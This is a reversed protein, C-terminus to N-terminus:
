DVSTASAASPITPRDARLRLLMTGVGLLVGIGMVIAGFRANTAIKVMFFIVLGINMLWMSAPEGWAVVHKTNATRLSYVGLLLNTTMGVFISHSFVVFYWPPGLTFDPAFYLLAYIMLIVTVMVWLTGFWTWARVGGSLPNYAMSMGATRVLFLVLGVALFLGFLPVLEDVRQVLYGFPVVLAAATLSLAQLLGDWTWRRAPGRAIMGEIMGAAVLIVYTDMMAAHIGVRDDNISLPLFRGIAYELGLLLGMTAGVAAVLLGCAVLIHMTTTVPQRRLQTLAYIAAAWIVLMAGTGFIPLLAFFGRGRSYAIGFSLIYAGFIGLAAYSLIRVGRVYTSSVDREGTFIWIALGILSLTIWGISGAHLHILTQWRPLVGTTVANDFGFYINILFLVASGMFLIRIQNWVERNRVQIM